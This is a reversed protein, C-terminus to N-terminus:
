GRFTPGNNSSNEYYKIEIVSNMPKQNAFKTAETLTDFSKFRVDMSSLYYTIKYM